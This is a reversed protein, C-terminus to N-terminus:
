FIDCWDSVRGLLEYDFPREFAAHSLDPHNKTQDPPPPSFKNSVRYLLYVFLAKFTKKLHLLTPKKQFLTGYIPLMIVFHEKEM